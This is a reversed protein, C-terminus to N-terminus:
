SILKEWCPFRCALFGLCPNVEALSGLCPMLDFSLHMTHPQSRMPHRALWAQLRLCCAVAAFRSTSTRDGVDKALHGARCHLMCEWLSHRKCGCGCAIMSMTLTLGVEAQARIFGSSSWFSGCSWIVICGSRTGLYSLRICSLSQREAQTCWHHSHLCPLQKQVAASTWWLWAWCLGDGSHRLESWAQM